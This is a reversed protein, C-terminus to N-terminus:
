KNWMMSLRKKGEEQKLFLYITNEDCVRYYFIEDESIDKM